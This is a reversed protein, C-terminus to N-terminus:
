GELLSNVMFILTVGFLASFRGWAHHRMTTGTWDPNRSFSLGDRDQERMALLPPFPTCAPQEDIRRCPSGAPTAYAPNLAQFFCRCRCSTVPPFAPAKVASKAKSTEVLRRGGQQAIMAVQQQWMELGRQAIKKVTELAEGIRRAIEVAVRLELPEVIEVTGVPFDEGVGAEVREIGLTHFHEGICLAAHAEIRAPMDRTMRHDEFM